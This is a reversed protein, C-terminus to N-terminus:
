LGERTRLEAGTHPFYTGRATHVPQLGAVIDYGCWGCRTLGDPVDHRCAPCQRQRPRTMLWTLSLVFFGFFWVFLILAVGIGTGADAASVCLDHGPPCERSARDWAGGVIWLLFLGNWANLLWTMTRWRLPNM